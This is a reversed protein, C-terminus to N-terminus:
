ATNYHVTSEYTLTEDIRELSCRPDIEELENDDRSSRALLKVPSSFRSRSSTSVFGDPTSRSRRPSKAGSPSSDLDHKYLDLQM